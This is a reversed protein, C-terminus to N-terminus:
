TRYAMEVYNVSVNKIDYIYSLIKPDVEVLVQLPVMIIYVQDGAQDCLLGAVSM